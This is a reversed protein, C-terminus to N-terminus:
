CRDLDVEWCEVAGAVEEEAWGSPARVEELLARIPRTADRLDPVREVKRHARMVWTQEGCGHDVRHDQSGADDEVDM